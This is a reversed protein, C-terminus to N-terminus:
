LGAAGTMKEVLATGKEGVMELVIRRIEAKGLWGQSVVGVYNAIPM